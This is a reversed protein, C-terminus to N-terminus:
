EEENPDRLTSVYDSSQKEEIVIDLLDEIQTALSLAPAVIVSSDIEKHVIRRCRSIPHVNLSYYTTPVKNFYRTITFESCINHPIILEGSYEENLQEILSKKPQKDLEQRAYRAVLLFLAKGLARFISSPAEPMKLEKPEYLSSQPESFDLRRPVVPTESLCEDLM